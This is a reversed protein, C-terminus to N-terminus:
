YSDKRTMRRGRSNFCYAYLLVQNRPGIIQLKRLIVKSCSCPQSYYKSVYWVSLPTRLVYDRFVNVQKRNPMWSCLRKVTYRLCNYCLIRKWFCRYRCHHCNRQVTLSDSKGSAIITIGTKLLGSGKSTSPTTFDAQNPTAAIHASTLRQTTHLGKTMPAHGATFKQTVPLSQTYSAKATTFSQPKPTARTASSNTMLTQVTLQTETSLVNSVPSLKAITASDNATLPKQSTPPADMALVTLNPKQPILLAKTTSSNRTTLNQLTPTAETAPVNVITHKQPASPSKTAPVNVTTPKQPTSPAETAPTNVTTPKQPTSPPKTAPVNIITHKQPTSPSETGPVNATTPKKLAPPPKTAPVNVTTPKQLASPPKTAPVNVTTPKPPTSPSETGPVNVTTHKQPAPPPETAPVKVTTPKQHSSPAKTGQADTTTPKQPTTPIEQCEPFPDAWAMDKGKYYCFTSNEGVLKYGPNCSFYIDSAFLIDTPISIHGNEIQGPDPCSRKYCFVEPTSWTYNQLCTVQASVSHNREYGPNCDYEVVFGAPRYSLNCFPALKTWEGNPLCHKGSQMGKIKVYGQNCYYGVIFGEPFTTLNELEPTANPVDDAPIGCGGRAAHPCLLLLLPPLLSLTLWGPPRLVAPAGRRAPRM